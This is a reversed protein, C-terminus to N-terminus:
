SAPVTLRTTRVGSQGTETNRVLTRLTYDEPPLQLQGSIRIDDEGQTSPDLRAERTFFDRVAGQSDIAYVYVEIPVMGRRGSALLTRGDIEVSLDVRSSAGEGDTVDVRVVTGISGGQRGSLLLEATVLRRESPGQESYPRPSFYGPRHTLRAGKLKSKLSVKLRRYRGDRKLNEPQIALVYTVSTRELMKGMADGLNNYNRYHVGGTRDAMLFLGDDAPRHAVVDNGAELGGIDVAQITAGARVFEKGMRELSNLSRTDGFRATSSVRQYQGNVAAEAARRQIERDRRSDVGAGLVIRSDFGESLFIVHKNGQVAGIMTALESMAGTLAEISNRAASRYSQGELSTLIEGVERDASFGGAGAGFPSSPQSLVIGLPDSARDFLQPLGLTEIAMAIQERDSGFGLLLQAGRVSYVGVAVLDSPHLNNEVLQAAARRARVVSAPRSFSLDFLLLFHRRGSVPIVEPRSPASAEPRLDIFDFGVIQQRRRGDRVEFDEATLGLVPLGARTVQVPIEVVVVDAVDQFSGEALAPVVTLVSLLVVAFFSNLRSRM